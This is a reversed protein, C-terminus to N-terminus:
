RSNVPIQRIEIEAGPIQKGLKLDDLLMKEDLKFYDRPIQAESTIKLFPMPKFKVSGSAVVVKQEPRYIAAMHKVATTTKKIEGSALKDAIKKEEIKDLRVQETQYDTMETRIKTIAEELKLELPKWRSREAKLAENLPKTIREKEATIKDNAQNLRSLMESAETMDDASKISFECAKVLLPATEAQIIISKDTKM